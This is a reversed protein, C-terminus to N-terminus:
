YQGMECILFSHAVILNHPNYNEWDLFLNDIINYKLSFVCLLKNKLFLHNLITCLTSEM